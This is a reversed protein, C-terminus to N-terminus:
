KITTDEDRIDRGNHFEGENITEEKCSNCVRDPNMTPKDCIICFAPFPM